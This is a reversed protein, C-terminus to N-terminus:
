LKFAWYIFIVGIMEAFIVLLAYRDGEDQDNDKPSPIFFPALMVCVGIVVMVTQILSMM